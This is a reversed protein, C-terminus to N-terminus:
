SKRSMKKSETKGRDKLGAVVAKEAPHKGTMHKTTRGAEPTYRRVRGSNRPFTSAAIESLNM